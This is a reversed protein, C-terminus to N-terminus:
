GVLIDPDWIGCEGAGYLTFAKIDYFAVVIASIRTFRGYFGGTCVLRCHPDIISSLPVSILYRVFSATAFM